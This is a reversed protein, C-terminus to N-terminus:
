EIKTGVAELAGKIVMSDVAGIKKAMVDMEGKLLNM